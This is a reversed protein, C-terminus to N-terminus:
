NTTKHDFRGGSSVRLIAEILDEAARSKVIYGHGLTSAENIYVGATYQSVFIICVSPFRDRIQRAADFGNMVPMSIDLLIVDPKLREAAEIAQVGDAAEGLVDCHASAIQRLVFRMSAHDDAIVIRPRSM